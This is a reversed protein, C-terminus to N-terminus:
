RTRWFPGNDHIYRSTIRADPYRRMYDEAHIDATKHSVPAPTTFCYAGGEGKFVLWGRDDDTILMMADRPRGILGNLPSHQDWDEVLRKGLWGIGKDTVMFSALSGAEPYHLAILDHAIMLNLLTRVQDKDALDYFVGSLIGYFTLSHNSQVACVIAQAARQMAFTLPELQPDLEFTTLPIDPEGDTTRSTVPM